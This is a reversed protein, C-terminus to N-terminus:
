PVLRAFAPEVEDLTLGGEFRDAIKGSKDILFIWPESKLGWEDSTQVQPELVGFHGPQERHHPDVPLKHTHDQLTNPTEIHIFNAKDKYKSEIAQAVELDPGCTFSPCFGPAAFLVLTPKGSRAADAITISHMDDHPQTSCINDLTPDDQKTMQRSAPASDGPVPIDSKALVQFNLKTQYADRGQQKVTILAGWDGPKDFTTHAVFLFAPLNKNHLVVDADGTKTGTGDPNLKFFQIKLDPADTIPQGTTEDALGFVFRNPGVILDSVALVPKAVKPAAATQTPVSTPVPVDGAGGGCGSLLMAAIGATAALRGLHKTNM